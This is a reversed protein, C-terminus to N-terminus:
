IRETELFRLSFWKDAAMRQGDMEDGFGVRFAKSAGHTEMVWPSQHVHVGDGMLPNLSRVIHLRHESLLQHSGDALFHRWRFEPAKSM